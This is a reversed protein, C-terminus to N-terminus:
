PTLAQKAQDQYEQVAQRALDAKQQRIEKVREIDQDQEANRQELSLTQLLYRQAEMYIGSKIRQENADYYKEAEDQRGEQHLKKYTNLANSSDTFAQYFRNLNQGGQGSIFSREFTEGVSRGGIQFDPNGSVRAIGRDLMNQLETGGRGLYGKVAHDIQLPSIGLQQGLWISTGSTDKDYQYEPDKNILDEPIIDRGTFFDKNIGIEALPKVPQLAINSLFGQKSPEIPSVTGIAAQAMEGFGVPDLGSWSEMPRRIFQTLNSYGPPLPIKIVNWRGREDQVPNPPVFIFNNDKEYKSLDNYAEKRKEDSLNWATSIVEPLLLIAATKATTLMPSRRFARVLARSGAFGATLYPQFARMVPGFNGHRSFDATVQRAAEAANVVADEPQLGKKVDSEFQAMFQQVRTAEEPRNIVNEFARFLESPNKVLYLAREKVSRSSRIAQATVDPAKRYVDFSTFMGGERVSKQYQEGHGIADMVAPLFNRVTAGLDRSAIAATLQDRIFNRAGFSPEVGTTGAKFMRMPVALVRGLLGLQHVNLAKAAEAIEKPAAITHKVGDELYSFTHPANSSPSVEQLLDSWGPLTRYSALTQASRNREGQAFLAEVKNIFSGTPPVIERKSGLMKQFVSQGSISGVGRGGGFGQTPIEAEEFVRQLPVYNPYKEQWYAAREAPILGYEVGKGLLSDSFQRLRDVYPQMVTQNAAVNAQAKQLDVGTEKGGNAEVDLAHLDTIYRDFDQLNPVDQLLKFYGSDKLFQGAMSKANIARSILNTIRDRPRVEYGYQNQFDRFLTEIPATYDVFNTKLDLGKGGLGAAALDAPVKTNYPLGSRPAANAPTNPPTGPPQGSPTIQNQAIQGRQQIRNSGSAEAPLTGASTQPHQGQDNGQLNREQTANSPPTSNQTALEAVPIPEQTGFLFDPTEPVHYGAQELTARSVNSGMPHGPIAETLKFSEGSLGQEAAGSPLEQRGLYIAPATIHEGPPVHTLQSPIAALDAASYQGQPIDTLDPVAYGQQELTMPSHSGINRGQADFLDIQVTKQPEGAKNLYEQVTIRSNEPLPQLRPNTRSILRNAFRPAFAAVGAGGLGYLAANKLREEPTDGQTAGYAAGGVGGAIARIRPDTLVETSIRGYEDRMNQAQRSLQPRMETAQQANLENIQRRAQDALTETPLQEPSVLQNNEISQKLTDALGSTEKRMVETEAARNAQAEEYALRERLAQAGQPSQRTYAADAQAQLQDAITQQDKAQQQAELVRQAEANIEALTPAVEEVSKTLELPTSENIALPEATRPALEPLNRRAAGSLGIGVGAGIALNQKVREPDITGTDALQLGIDGIANTTGGLVAGAAARGGRRALERAVANEIPAAAQDVLAGARNLGPIPLLGLGIGGAANINAARQIEEPTKGATEDRQVATGAMTGGATLPALPGSMVIPATQGVFEAGKGLLTDNRTVDPQYVSSIAARLKDIPRTGALRRRERAAQAAAAAQDGLMLRELGEVIPKGVVQTGGQVANVLTTAEGRGLRQMTDEAASQQQIPSSFAAYPDTEQPPTAVSSFQDYPDASPM